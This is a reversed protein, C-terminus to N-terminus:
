RVLARSLHLVSAYRAAFGQNAARQVDEPVSAVSSPFCCRKFTLVSPFPTPSHPYGVWVRGGESLRIRHVTPGKLLLVNGEYVVGQRRDVHDRHMLM